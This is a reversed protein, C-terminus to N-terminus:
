PKALRELEKEFQRVFARAMGAYPQDPQTAKLLDAKYKALRAMIRSAEAPSPSSEMDHALDVIPHCRMQLERVRAERELILGARNLGYIAISAKAYPDEEGAATLKPRVVAVIPDAEWFLMKDDWEFIFELHAAPDRECPNILLPDESTLDGTETTVWNDGRVPFANAKGTLRKPKLRLAREFEELTMGPDFVVQRRRQNCPPCSPLLNRWIAALWWYGWHGPAETVGGKPRYHEVDRADVARYRSECYACKGHFLDDLAQCVEWEKYRAFPFAKKPRTKRKYYKRARQLETKNGFGSRKNLADWVAQPEDPRVVYIM